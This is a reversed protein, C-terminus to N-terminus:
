KPTEETHIPQFSVWEPVHVELWRKARESVVIRDRNKAGFFDVRRIPSLDGLIQLWAGAPTREDLSEMQVLREVRAEWLTGLAQAAAESHPCERFMDFPDDIPPLEGIDPSQRDLHEWHFEVIRQKVLPHFTLGTLGSDELIKRFDDKVVMVGMGPLAIPPAVPGARYYLLQGDKGRQWDGGIFLDGFDGWLDPGTLEFFSTNERPAAPTTPIM